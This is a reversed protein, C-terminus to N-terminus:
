RDGAKGRLDNPLVMSYTALGNDDFRPQTVPQASPPADGVNTLPGTTRSGARRQTLRRYGAVLLALWLFPEWM